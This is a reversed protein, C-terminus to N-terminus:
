FVSIILHHKDFPNNKDQSIHEKGNQLLPLAHFSDTAFTDPMKTWGICGIIFAVSKGSSILYAIGLTTHSGRVLICSFARSITASGSRIREKYENEPPPPPAGESYFEMGWGLSIAESTGTHDRNLPRIM